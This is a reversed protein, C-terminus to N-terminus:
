VCKGSSTSLCSYGNPRGTFEFNLINGSGITKNENQMTNKMVENIEKMILSLTLLEEYIALKM